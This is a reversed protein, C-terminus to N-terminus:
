KIVVNDIRYTGTQGYEGSGKYRFAIYVTRGAYSSLDIDGSDIWAHNPDTSTAIQAPLETWTASRVDYGNFDTSIYVKLADHTWYAKATQFSLKMGNHVAVPPSILWAINQAEGSNYASMQAYHNVAGSYFGGMWKRTGAEAYNYWGQLDIDEYKETLGFTETITAADCRASQMDVDYIDRLIIQLEDNTINGDHDADYCSLIGTLNGSGFRVHADAFNSYGSTRVIVEDGTSCSVLIRNASRPSPNNSQSDSFAFNEYVSFDHFKVDQLKVLQGVMGYDLGNVSVEVPQPEETRNMFFIHDQDIDDTIRGINGGYIYGLQIEGNKVGVYLDKVKIRLKAGRHYGRLYLDRMNLNLRIGGSQDAIYVAKYLNGSKDSATVVAEIIWDDSIQVLNNSGLAAKIDAITANPTLSSADCSPTSGDCRAGSFNVDDLDRIYIQFTNNYKGLVATVSGKGAPVSAKAFDAYGSNRMIITNGNCDELYKSVGSLGELAYTSCLESKRFQIDDIQILTNLYSNGNAQIDGLTVVTPTIQVPADCSAVVRRKVESPPIRGIRTGYGSDYTMGLKYLGRDKGIFLGKVNVFVKKGVPFDVYLNRQDLSIYIGATPSSPADQIVLATYYNGAEDSSIVYGEIIWDNEIQVIDGSPSLALLDAITANATLNGQCPTQPEDWSKKCATTGVLGTVVLLYTFIKVINKM